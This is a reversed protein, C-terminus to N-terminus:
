TRERLVPALESEPLSLAQEQWAALAAAVAQRVAPHSDRQAERLAAQAALSASTGLAGAAAARVHPDEDAVLDLLEDELEASLGLTRVLELGRLRRKRAPSRLEERLVPLAQPDLKRVLGAAATRAAEDLEEWAALVGAATFEPLQERVAARVDPSPSNALHILLERAHSINRPRLQRCAAAQVLPDPDAAAERILADAEEGPYPAMAEIAARRAAASGQRALAVLLELVASRRALCGALRIAALQLDADLGPLWQAVSRPWAPQELRQLNAHATASLDRCAKRLLTEVFPRDGRHALAHLVALPPRPDELFSVLLRLTAPRESTTLLHICAGHAPDSVEYLMERLAPDNRDAVVLLAEVAEIQHHRGYRRAADQLPGLAHYRAQELLRAQRFNEPAHLGEHLQEALEVLAVAARSGAASELAAALVPLMDYCRAWLCAQCANAALQPEPDLLAERIVSTARSPWAAVAEQWAADGTHLRRLIERLALPAQRQLVARLAAHQVARDPAALAAMLLPVASENPTTALLSFTTSLGAQV